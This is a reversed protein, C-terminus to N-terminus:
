APRRSMVVGWVGCAIGLAIGHGIRVADPAFFQPLYLCLLVALPIGAWRVAVSRWTDVALLVGGIAILVFGVGFLTTAVAQERIAAAVAAISTLDGHEADQGLVHLAFTEAGYYPLLAAAGLGILWAPKAFRRTATDVALVVAVTLTVWAIMGLLHSFVWLPDAFAQAMQADDGTKDGWPRLLPFAAFALGAATAAAAVPWSGAIRSSSASPSPVSM